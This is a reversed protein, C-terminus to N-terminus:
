CTRKKRPLFEAKYYRIGLLSVYKNFSYIETKDKNPTFGVNTLVKYLVKVLGWSVYDKNIVFTLDDAYMFLKINSWQSFVSAIRLSWLAFIAPAIPNGQFLRGNYCMAKSLWDSDKRNLRFVIRLLAKIDSETIQNFADKLDICVLSKHEWELSRIDRLVDVSSRNKAFGYVEAVPITLIENLRHLVSRTNSDYTLIERITGGEKRVKQIENGFVKTGKPLVHHKKVVAFKVKHDFDAYRLGLNYNIEAYLQKGVKECTSRGLFARVAKAHTFSKHSFDDMDYM